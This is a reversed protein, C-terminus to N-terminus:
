GNGDVSYQSLGDTGIFQERTMTGGGNVSVEVEAYPYVDYVAFDMAGDTGVGVTNYDVSISYEKTTAYDFYDTPGTLSGNYGDSPHKLCGSMLIGLSSLSLLITKRM